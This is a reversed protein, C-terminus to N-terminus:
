SRLGLGSILFGQVRFGARLGMRGVFVRLGEGSGVRGAKLEGLNESPYLGLTM